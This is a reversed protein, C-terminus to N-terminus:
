LGLALRMERFETSCEYCQTIHDWRPDPSVKQAALGQLEAHPPCGIRLPNAHAGAFVAEMMSDDDLALLKDCFARLSSGEPLDARRSRVLGRVKAIAGAWTREVWAATVPQRRRVLTRSAARATTVPIVSSRRVRRLQKRM